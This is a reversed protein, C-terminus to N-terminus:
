YGRNRRRRRLRIGFPILGIVLVAIVMHFNNRRIYKETPDTLPINQAGAGGFVYLIDGITENRPEIPSTHLRVTNADAILESLFLTTNYLDRGASYTRLRNNNVNNLRSFLFEFNM